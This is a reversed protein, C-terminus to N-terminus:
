SNILKLELQSRDMESTLINCVTAAHVVLQKM